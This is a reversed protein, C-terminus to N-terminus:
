MELKGIVTFLHLGLYCSFDTRAMFLALFLNSSDWIDETDSLMCM